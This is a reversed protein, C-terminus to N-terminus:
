VPRPARFDAPLTVIFGHRQTPIDPKIADLADLADLADVVRLNVPMERMKLWSWKDM